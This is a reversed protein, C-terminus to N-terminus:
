VNMIYDRFKHFDNTGKPLAKTFIDAIEDETDIKHVTIMGSSLSRAGAPPDGPNGRGM